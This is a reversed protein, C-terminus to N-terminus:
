YREFAQQIQATNMNNLLTLQLLIRAKAPSLNGAAISGLTDDNIEMNRDVYGYGVRSSRVVAINQKIAKEVAELTAKNMNGNGVGAFVLGKAGHRISSVVQDAAFGAHGFLIDVRPWPKELAAAFSDGASVRSAPQFYRVHGVQATGLAGALGSQFTDVRTTHTKTVVRARHIIDNAVVLVGRGHSAKAGAVAVANYLNMPGDASLGNSPRMSATLVVPKDSDVVLSLFFATEELTDTGHTIVIGDVEPKALLTNVRKALKQWVGVSMDQSAINTIQEARVDALRSLQPLASLLADGTIQAAQYNASVESKGRGAITGGTALVVVDPKDAASNNDSQDSTAAKIKAPMKATDAASTANLLRQRVTKSVDVEQAPRTKLTSPQTDSVGREVPHGTQRNEQTVQNTRKTMEEVASEPLIVEAQLATSFAAGGVCLLCMVSNRITKAITRTLM